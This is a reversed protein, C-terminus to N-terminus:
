FAPNFGPKLGTQGCISVGQILLLRGVQNVLDAIKNTFNALRSKPM